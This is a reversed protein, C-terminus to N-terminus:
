GSCGWWARARPWNRVGLDLRQGAFETSLGYVRGRHHLRHDVPTSGVRLPLGAMPEDIDLIALGHGSTGVLRGRGPVEGLGAALWPTHSKLLYLTAGRRTFVDRVEIGAVSHRWTLALPEGQALPLFLVCRQGALVAVGALPWLLAAVLAAIM